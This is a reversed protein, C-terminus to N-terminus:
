TIGNIRQFVLAISSYDLESLGQNMGATYLGLVSSAIPLAIGNLIGETQILALDKRIMKLTFSPSYENNCMRPGKRETYSSKHPTKNVVDVFDKADIGIKQAFVFAESYAAAVNAIYLNFALKMKHGAGSEGMYVVEKGMQRLFELHKAYVDRRGGVVIVLEGKAAPQPGGLVPADLREIDRKECEAAHEISAEPLITSMDIWLSGKKMGALFGDEGLAVDRVAQHDTLMTIAVDVGETAARPTPYIVAGKEALPKAKEKTRNYGHVEHNRSLLNQAIAAGMLGLGLVAVKSM